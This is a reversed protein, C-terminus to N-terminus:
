LFVFDPLLNFIRGLVGLGKFLVRTDRRSEGGDGDACLSSLRTGFLPLRTVACILRVAGILSGAAPRHPRGSSGTLRRLVRLLLAMCLPEFVSLVM